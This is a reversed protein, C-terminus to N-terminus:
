ESGLIEDLKDEWKESAVANTTTPVPDVVVRHGPVRNTAVPVSPPPQPGPHPVVPAVHRPPAPPNVVAEPTPPPQVGTDPTRSAFSGILFGLGIVAALTGLGILIKRQM